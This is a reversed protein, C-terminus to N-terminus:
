NGGGENKKLAEALRKNEAAFDELRKRDIRECESQCFTSIEHRAIGLGFLLNILESLLEFAGTVIEERM